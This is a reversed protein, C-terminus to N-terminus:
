VYLNAKVKSAIGQFNDYNYTYGDKSVNKIPYDLLTYSTSKGLCPLVFFPFITHTGCKCVIRGQSISSIRFFIKCALFQWLQIARTHSNTSVDTIYGDKGASQYM